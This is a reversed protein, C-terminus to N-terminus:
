STINTIGRQPVMHLLCTVFMCTFLCSSIQAMQRLRQSETNNTGPKHSFLTFTSDLTECSPPSLHTGEISHGRRESGKFGRPLIGAGDM